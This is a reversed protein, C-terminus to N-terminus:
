RNSRTKVPFNNNNKRHTGADKGHAHERGAWHSAAQHHQIDQTFTSSTLRGSVTLLTLCLSLAPLSM